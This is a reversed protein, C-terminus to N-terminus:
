YSEEGPLPGGPYAPVPGSALDADIEGSNAYTRQGSAEYDGNARGYRTAARARSYAEDSLQGSAAASQYRGGTGYDTNATGFDLSRLRGDNDIWCNWGEGDSMRGSVRWGDPRRSADDVSDVRASGREAQDVCIDVARDIGSESSRSGRRYDAQAPERRPYREDYRERSNNRASSAIAAIAGIVLVGAIVDGADIGRNRHGRYRDYRDYRDYGWGHAEMQMARSLHPALAGSAPMEVAGAPTAAMALAALSTVATPLRIM